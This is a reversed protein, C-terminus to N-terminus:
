KSGAEIVITIAPKLQQLLISQAAGPFVAGILTYLVSALADRTTKKEWTSVLAGLAQVELQKLAALPDPQTGAKAIVGEASPIPFSPNTPTENGM